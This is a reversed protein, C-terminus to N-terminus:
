DPTAAWPASCFEGRGGEGEFAWGSASNNSDFSGVALEGIENLCTFKGDIIPWVGECSATVKCDKLENTVGDINSDFASQADCNSLNGGIIQTGDESVNFCVGAGSWKGSTIGSPPPEPPEICTVGEIDTLRVLSYDYNQLTGNTQVSFLASDCFPFRVTVTGFATVNQDAPDYDPGWSPGDIIFVEIAAVEDEPGITVSGTLWLQKGEADYSYMAIGVQSIGGTNIIEVWFGEGARQPNFWQGTPGGDALILNALTTTSFGLMLSLITLIILIKKMSKSRYELESPHNSHDLFNLFPFM